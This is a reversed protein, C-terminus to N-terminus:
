TASNQIIRMIMAINDYLNRTCNLQNLTGIMIVDGEPWYYMFNDSSGTHGWVEGLGEYAPNASKDFLVRSIGLGYNHFPGSTVWEFMRKITTPNKFIENRVFTRMFLLLDETTSILGGGAWDATMVAPLLTCEMDDLYRQSPARGPFRPKAIEHSPRYTYEMGLPDLLLERYVIHLETGTVAEIILGLLNYGPDSYQFGSGPCFRPKCNHKVYEITEEPKWRRHPDAIILDLFHPNSWNDAIGSTHSLLHAITIIEGYSQGSYIHLGELISGPLFRSIRDELAIEDAEVLKMVITATMMKSISDINFQDDPLMSIAEQPFAMGCAGKWKFGPSEVLLVGNHVNAQDNVLCTLLSHLQHSLDSPYAM